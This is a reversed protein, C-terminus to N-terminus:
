YRNTVYGSFLKKNFNLLALIHKLYNRLQIKSKQNKNHTLERQRRNDNRDFGISLDPTDIAISILKYKLSVIHSQINDELHKRSSTTLKYKSFLAIPGLIILKIDNSDAYRNNTAAHLVDLNM